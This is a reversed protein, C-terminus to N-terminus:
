PQAEVVRPHRKLLQEFARFIAVRHEIARVAAAYPLVRLLCAKQQKTIGIMQRMETVSCVRRRVLDFCVEAERSAKGTSPIPGPRM